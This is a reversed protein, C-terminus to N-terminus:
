RLPRSTRLAKFYNSVIQDVTITQDAPIEEADTVGNVMVIFCVLIVMKKLM